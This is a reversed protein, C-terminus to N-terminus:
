KGTELNRMIRGRFRQAFPRESFGSIRSATGCIKRCRTGTGTDPMGSQAATEETEGTKLHFFGTNKIWVRVRKHVATEALEIRVQGFFCGHFPPSIKIRLFVFFGQFDLSKQKAAREYQLIHDSHSSEFWRGRPGSGLARGHQAVGRQLLLYQIM